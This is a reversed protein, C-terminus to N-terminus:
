LAVPAATALSEREAELLRTVELAEDVTVPPLSSRNLALALAARVELDYGTEPSLEVAEFVGRRALRLRPERALDFDATAEEFVVTYAMRFPFGAAHDWGGEAVAHAPGHPYRYACTLHDPYGLAAVSVPDGFCWRLFDVDHVHLDFLAGGNRRADGYFDPSWDPRAAHRRFVASRVAGFTGAVIREALWDWGPWFRMCMAPMCFTEAERAALALRHVEPSSLAVPKEVLVHKQARLAELALAVHSETPTCISVLEVEPDALLEEAREYSRTAAPDFLRAAADASELNGRPGGEGSRRREDPDCVAVVRNALDAAASRYAALHTRGMFGLGIVGVKVERAGRV